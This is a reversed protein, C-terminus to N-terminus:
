RSQNHLGAGSAQGSHRGAERREAVPGASWNKGRTQGFIVGDPTIMSYKWDKGPPSFGAPMKQMVFLPGIGIRGDASVSFSDKAIATGVPM